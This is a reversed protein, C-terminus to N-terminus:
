QPQKILLLTRWGGNLCHCWRVQELCQLASIYSGCFPSQKGKGIVTRTSTALVSIAPDFATLRIAKDSVTFNSESRRCYCVAGDTINYVGTRVNRTVGPKAAKKNIQKLKIAYSSNSELILNRM